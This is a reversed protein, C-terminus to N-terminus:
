QNETEAIEPTESTEVNETETNSTIEEINEDVASLESDNESVEELPPEPEQNQHAPDGLFMWGRSSAFIEEDPSHQHFQAGFTSMRDPGSAAGKLKVFSPGFEMRGM